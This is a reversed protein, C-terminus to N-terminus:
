KEGLFNKITHMRKKRINKVMNGHCIPLKEQPNNGARKKRHALAGNCTRLM